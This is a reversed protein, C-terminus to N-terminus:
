QQWHVQELLTINLAPSVVIKVLIGVSVATVVSTNLVHRGLSTSAACAASHARASSSYACLVETCSFPVLETRHKSVHHLSQIVRRKIDTQSGAGHEVM